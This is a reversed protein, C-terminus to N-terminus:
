AMGELGSKSDPPNQVKKGKWILSGDVESLVREKLIVSSNSSLPFSLHGPSLFQPPMSWPLTIISSDLFSSCLQQSIKSIMFVYRIACKYKPPQFCVLVDTNQCKFIVGLIINKLYYLPKDTKNSKERGM